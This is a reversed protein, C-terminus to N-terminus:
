SSKKLHFKYQIYQKIKIMDYKTILIGHLSM